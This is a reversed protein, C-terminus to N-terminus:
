SHQHWASATTMDAVAEETALRGHRTPPVPCAAARFEVSSGTLEMFAEELSALAPALEHLRVGSDYALDGIRDATWDRHGDAARGGDDRM